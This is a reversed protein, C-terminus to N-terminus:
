TSTSLRFPAMMLVIMLLFSEIILMNRDPLLILITRIDLSIFLIGVLVSWVFRCSIPPISHFITNPNCTTNKYKPISQIQSTIISHTHLIHKSQTKTSVIHNPNPGYKSYNRRYQYGPTIMLIQYIILCCNICNWIRM